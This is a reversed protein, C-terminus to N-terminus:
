YFSTKARCVKITALLYEMPRDGKISNCGGCLLQLNQWVSVGGHNQPYIHDIHFHRPHDFHKHCGNCNGTQTGYFSESVKKKIKPNKLNLLELDSRVPLTKIAIFDTFIDASADDTFTLRDKVLDVALESVDIGIWNRHLNHAAVCTTACGCFPDMVLDGPNSSANIIRDLLPIPKQTPYGTREKAVSNVSPIDTWWDNCTMGDKPYYIREKGFDVRVRCRNGDKDTQRYHSNLYKKSIPLTYDFHMHSTKSYLLIVDHKSAFKKRSRGSNSYCWIIENRFNNKEFICDLIIKLYHSAVPDCHLYLSGSDKLIRHMEIIRQAMFTLYAKMPLGHIDGASDIYAFLKPHVALFSELRIDVDENWVWIDSFGAQKLSGKASAKKEAPSGIPAAHMRKSNFPPDLYILDVTNSNMGHMVDLNDGVYLKNKSTKM